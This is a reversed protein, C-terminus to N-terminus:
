QVEHHNSFIIGGDSDTLDMKDFDIEEIFGNQLHGQSKSTDVFEVGFSGTTDDDPLFAENELNSIM